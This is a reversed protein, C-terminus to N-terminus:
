YLSTSRSVLKATSMRRLSPSIYAPSCIAETERALADLVEHFVMSRPLISFFDGRELTAMTTHPCRALMVQVGVNHYRIVVMKLMNLGDIDIYTMASCDLILYQIDASGCSSADPSRNHVEMPDFVQEFVQNKFSEANAFFLQSPFYFIRTKELHRTWARGLGAVFLDERVSRVVLDGKIFQNNVMFGLAAMLIGICVGYELDGFATSVWTSMWVVFDTRSVRYIRPIKTIQKLVDMVAVLIMAALTALPLPQFMGSLFSTSCLLLVVTHIGNLTTKAGSQHLVMTRPPSVSNSQVTFFSSGLNCMGYAILERNADLDYGHIKEMLMAMSISMTFVIVAQILSDYLVGTVVAADMQPLHPTPLDASIPGVVSIGWSGNLDAVHSIGCGLIVLLLNSPLRVGLKAKFIPGLVRDMFVLVIISVMCVVTDPINTKPISEIVDIITRILKGFGSRVPIKVHLVHQIQSVAIHLAAASTFGGVFSSPMYNTLFGMRLLGMGLLILGCEFTSTMAVGLKINMRERNDYGHIPASITQNATLKTKHLSANTAITTPAATPEEGLIRDAEREVMAATVLSLVANTGMSMHPVTGFVVYILVSFLSTYLGSVPTLNALLGYALGQPIHLCAVSFGGVIDPFLDKGFDYSKAYGWCPFLRDLKPYRWRTDDTDDDSIHLYHEEIEDYTYAARRLRIITHPAEEDLKFSLLRQSKTRPSDLTDSNPFFGPFFTSSEIDVPHSFSEKHSESDTHNTRTGLAHHFKAAISSLFTSGSTTSSEKMEATDNDNSPAMIPAIFKVPGFIKDIFNM